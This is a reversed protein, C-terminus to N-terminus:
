EDETWIRGKIKKKRVARKVAEYAPQIEDTPLLQQLQKVELALAKAYMKYSSFIIDRDEIETM